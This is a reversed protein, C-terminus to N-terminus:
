PERAWPDIASLERMPAGGLSEVHSGYGGKASREAERVQRPHLQGM